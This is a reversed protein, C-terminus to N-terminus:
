SYLDVLMGRIADLRDMIALQREQGARVDEALGTLQNDIEKITAYMKQRGHRDWGTQSQLTYARGVVEALFSRVLERYSKLEAYTPAYGLRNGQATIQELLSNLRELSVDDQVKRLDAAFQGSSREARGPTEREPIVQPNTSRMNNIKM